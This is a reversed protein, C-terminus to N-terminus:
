ERSSTISQAKSTSLVKEIEKKALKMPCPDKSIEIQKIKFGQQASVGTIHMLRKVNLFNRKIYGTVQLEKKVPDINVLNGLM